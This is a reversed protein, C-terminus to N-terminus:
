YWIGKGYDANPDAVFTGSSSSSGSSGSSGSTGFNSKGYASAIQNGVNGWINGRALTAAASADGQSGLAQTIANTASQGAQASGTTATQGLGAISALRNLRDQGRQYAAGYGSTAYDTGYRNAAKLAAGSVRGGMAAAKRDLALQGQNLGFQYGPDSMVEAATPNTNMQSVLSSLANQGAKRFPAYDGRTLDFQRRQEAIQANTSAQQQQSASSTAKSGGIGSVLGGVVAGAVPGGFITAVPAAIAKVVNGVFSM